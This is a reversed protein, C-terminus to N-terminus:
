PKQSAPLTPKSANAPPNSPQNEHSHPSATPQKPIIGGCPGLEKPPTRGPRNANERDRETQCAKFAELQKGPIIKAIERETEQDIQRIKNSKKEPTLSHDSCVASIKGKANDEIQWRQNMM